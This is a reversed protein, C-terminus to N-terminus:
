GSVPGIEALMAYHDSLPVSDGSPLPVVPETLAHRTAVHLGDPADRMFILDIDHSPETPIGHALPNDLSWSKVGADDFTDATERLDRWGRETAVAHGTPENFLSLNFDGGLLKMLGQGQAEMFATSQAVEEARLVPAKLRIRERGRGDYSAHLNGVAVPGLPTEVSVAMAGKRAVVTEVWDLQRFRTVAPGRAPWDSRVLICLGTDPGADAAMFASYGPLARLMSHVSPHYAEQLLWIDVGLPNAALADMIYPLRRTAHPVGDVVPVELLRLRALGINFTAIRLM